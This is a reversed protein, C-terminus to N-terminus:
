EGLPCAPASPIKQDRRYARSEPSPPSTSSRDSPASPSSSAPLNHLRAAITAPDSKYIARVDLGAPIASHFGCDAVVLRLASKNLLQFPVATASGPSKM